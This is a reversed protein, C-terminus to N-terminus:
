SARDLRPTKKYFGAADRCAKPAAQLPMHTPGGSAAIGNRVNIVDTM